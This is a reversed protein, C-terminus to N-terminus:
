GKLGETENANEFLAKVKDFLCFLQVKICLANHSRFKYYTIDSFIIQHM